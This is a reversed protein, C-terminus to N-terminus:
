GERILRLQRPTDVGKHRIVDSVVFPLESTNAELAARHSAANYEGTLLWAPDVGYERIVAAIVTMTPYPSLEDISMRLAVEDVRLRAALEAVSGQGTLLGRIRSALAANDSETMLHWSAINPGSGFGHVVPAM